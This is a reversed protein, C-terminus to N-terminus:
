TSVFSISGEEAGVSLLIFTGLLQEEDALQDGTRTTTGETMMGATLVGVGRRNGPEFQNSGGLFTITFSVLPLGHRESVILTAGNALQTKTWTPVHLVPTPGPSPVATRDLTQQALAAINALSIVLAAAVALAKRQTKMM